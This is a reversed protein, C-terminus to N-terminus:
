QLIISQILYKKDVIAAVEDETHSLMVAWERLLMQRVDSPTLDQDPVVKFGHASVVKNNDETDIVLIINKMTTLRETKFM